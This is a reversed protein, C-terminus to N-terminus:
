SEYGQSIHPIINGSVAVISRRLDKSVAKIQEVVTEGSLLYNLIGMCGFLTDM